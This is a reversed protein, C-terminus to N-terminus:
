QIDGLLVILEQITKTKIKNVFYGQIQGYCWNHIRLEILERPTRGQQTAVKQVIKADDNDVTITFDPM